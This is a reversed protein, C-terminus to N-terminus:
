LSLTVKIGEVSFVPVGSLSSATANTTANTSSDDSIIICKPSGTGNSPPIPFDKKFFTNDYSVPFGLAALAQPM